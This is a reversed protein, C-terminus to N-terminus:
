DRVLLLKGVHGSEELARHADAARRLPFTSDVVPRVRGAGILPWVHERVATVIEAKEGAPRGRLSTASVSARKALLAGLNLEGKVGGQMGIVVLRGGTALARVNDPLYKAGIIDLVVDAGRGDTANRLEEVFDQERYDILIEAGLEACAALKAPGGATVAVRAGVARALQIAMTGIGSAGGHILVTEGPRLGAARMGPVRFLNSWVTCVVEPLAAATVLEVGDPVPLLQGTPVVVREAYGGGSLLACVQDGVAWGIVAPGVAAVTGSCELGPHPSAGPPPDYNGQRQLLDARNVAAAAVEVLVEGPGPEPDPVESWELVDPGGPERITIARM